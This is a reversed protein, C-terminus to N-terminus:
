EGPTKAPGPKMAAIWAWLLKVGEQGVESTPMPPM